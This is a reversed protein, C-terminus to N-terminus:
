TLAGSRKRGRQSRTAIPSVKNRMPNNLFTITASGSPTAARGIEGFDM